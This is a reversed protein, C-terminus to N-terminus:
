VHKEERRQGQARLRLCLLEQRASQGSYDHHLGARVAAALAGDGGRSRSLSDSQMAFRLMGVKLSRLMAIRPFPNAKTGIGCRADGGDKKDM